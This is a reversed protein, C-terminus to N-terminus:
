FPFFTRTEAIRRLIDFIIEREKKREKKRKKKKKGIQQKM